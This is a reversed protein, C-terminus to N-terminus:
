DSEMFANTNKRTGNKSGNDVQGYLTSLCKKVAQKQEIKKQRKKIQLRKPQTSLLDDVIDEPNRDYM